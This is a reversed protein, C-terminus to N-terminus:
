IYIYIDCSIVVKDLKSWWWLRPQVEKWQRDSACRTTNMHELRGVGMPMTNSLLLEASEKKVLSSNPTGRFSILFGKGPSGHQTLYWLDGAGKWTPGNRQHNKQSMILWTYSNSNQFVTVRVGMGGCNLDHDYLSKLLAWTCLSRGYGFSHFLHPLFQVQPIETRQPIVKPHTKCPELEIDLRYPIQIFNSIDALIDM